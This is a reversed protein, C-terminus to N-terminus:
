TALIFGGSFVEGGAGGVRVWLEYRTGETLEIEASASGFTPTTASVLQTAAVWSGSWSGATWGTSPSTAAAGLASHDTVTFEIGSATPDTTFRGTWVFSRVGASEATVELSM